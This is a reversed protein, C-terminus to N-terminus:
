ILTKHFIIKVSYEGFSPFIYSVYELNLTKEKEIIFDVVKKGNIYM